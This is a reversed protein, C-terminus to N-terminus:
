AMDQERAGGRLLLNLFTHVLIWVETLGETGESLRPPEVRFRNQEFNFIIRSSSTTSASTNRIRDRRETEKKVRLSDEAM